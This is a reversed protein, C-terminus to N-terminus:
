GWKVCRIVWVYKSCIPQGNVKGPIWNDMQMLRKRLKVKTEDKVDLDVFEVGVIQGAKDITLSTIMRTPQSGDKSLIPLLNAMAYDMMGKVDTKYKAQVEPKDYVRDCGVDIQGFSQIGCTLILLILIKTKM